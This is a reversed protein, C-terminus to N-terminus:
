YSRCKTVTLNPVDNRVHQTEIKEPRIYAKTSRIRIKKKQKCCLTMLHNRYVVWIKNQFRTLQLIYWLALSTRSISSIRANHLRINMLNGDHERTKTCLDSQFLKQAQIKAWTTDLQLYQHNLRKRPAGIRGTRMALPVMTSLIVVWDAKHSVVIIM